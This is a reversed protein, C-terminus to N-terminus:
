VQAEEPNIKFLTGVRTDLLLDLDVMAISKEM